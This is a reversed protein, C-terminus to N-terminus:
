ETATDEVLGETGTLASSSSANLGANTIVTEAAKEMRNRVTKVWHNSVSVGDEKVTESIYKDFKDNALAERVTNKWVPDKSKSSLYMVHYGYDTKIIGTDGKKRGNAFCWNLFPEVYNSDKTVDEYLGGNEASGTDETLKTALKAFSEDTADGKKWNALAKEALAKAEKDTHGSETESEESSDSVLYLIQRVNVPYQNDRKQANEVAYIYYTAIGDEDKVEFLQKDGSKRDASFAWDAAKKSVYDHIATYNTDKMSSYDPEGKMLEKQDEDETAEYALQTFNSLNVKELFAQAKKKLKANAKQIDEKSKKDDATIAPSFTFNRLDVTTYDKTNKNFEKEIEDDTIDKSLEALKDEKYRNVISQKTYIKKLLGASMGRGYNTRLYADLSYGDQEANSTLSEIFEDLEKQEDKNLEYGEALAKKYLQTSSNAEKLSEQEFYDAWTPNKGYKEDITLGAEENAVFEQNAPTKTYDYGTMMKGAGEGYYSGYYTEYQQSMQYYYNFYMRYYYEYEAVSIRDKDATKEAASVRDFLGFFASLAIALALLIALLPAVIRLAKQGKTMNRRKKEKAAQRENSKEISAKRKERAELAKQAKKEKKAKQDQIHKLEKQAKKETKNTDAM